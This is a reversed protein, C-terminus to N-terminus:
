SGYYVIKYLETVSKSVIAENQMEELRANEDLCLTVGHIDSVIQEGIVNM